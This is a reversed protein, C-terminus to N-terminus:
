RPAGFRVGLTVRWFGYDKSYVGGRRNEDAFARSYRLEGRLAVRRGLSYLTGGSISWGLDNQARSKENTWARIVGFGASGYPRWRTTGTGRFPMVVNGMFGMADTNIDVCRSVSRTCNPPAGPDLPVIESDKFFHQYRQFELEVGLRRGFYGVSAGPGGRRFEVDGALNAGLQPTIVWQAHVPAATWAVFPVLLVRRRLRTVPELMQKAEPKPGASFAAKIGDPEAAALRSL